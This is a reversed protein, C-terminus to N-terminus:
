EPLEDKWCLSWKNILKLFNLLEDYSRPICVKKEELKTVINLNCSEITEDIEKKIYELTEHLSMSIPLEIEIYSEDCEVFAFFVVIIPSNNNGFEHTNFYEISYFHIHESDNGFKEHSAKVTPIQFNYILNTFLENKTFCGINMEELVNKFGNSAAIEAILDDITKISNENIETDAFTDNWRSCCPSYFDLGYKDCSVIIGLANYVKEQWNPDCARLKEEFVTM